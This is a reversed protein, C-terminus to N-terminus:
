HRFHRMGTFVIALGGADAAAIAETDRPSGGSQIVARPVSEITAEDTVKFAPVPM